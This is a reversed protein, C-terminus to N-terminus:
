LRDDLLGSKHLGPPLPDARTSSSAAALETGGGPSIAAGTESSGRSLVM